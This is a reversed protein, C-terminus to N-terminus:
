QSCGQAHKARAAINRAANKDANMSYGCSQCEFNSGNRNKSDCHGCNSCTQSTYASDVEIGTLGGDAKCLIISAVMLDAEGKDQELPARHNEGVEYSIKKRGNLTWFSFDQRDTYFSLIRSDYPFGGRIDFQNHSDPNTKYADAVKGLARVTIQAGLDFQERVEHYVAEQLKYKSHEGSEHAYDSIYNCAENARELTHLLSKAQEDSPLLKIQATLKM